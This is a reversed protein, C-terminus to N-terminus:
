RNSRGTTVRYVLLAGSEADVAAWRHGSPDIAGTNWDRDGVLAPMPRPDFRLVRRGLSGPGGATLLHLRGRRDVSAEIWAGEAAEVAISRATGTQPDVLDARGAMGLVVRWLRGAPGPLLRTFYQATLVADASGRHEGTWVASGNLHIRESGPVPGRRLQVRGPRGAGPDWPIPGLWWAGTSDAVCGTLAVELRSRAVPGSRGFVQALLRAPQLVVVERSRAGTALLAMPGRVDFPGSGQVALVDVIGTGPEIALLEPPLLGLLHIRDPDSWLVQAALDVGRGPELVERPASLPLPSAGPAGEETRGAGAGLAGAVSLIAILGPWPRRARAAFM